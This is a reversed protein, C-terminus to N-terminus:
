KALAIISVILAFLAIFASIVASVTSIWALRYNKAAQVEADKAMKLAEEASKASRAAADASVQAGHATDTLAKVEKERETLLGLYHAWKAELGPGALQDIVQARTTVPNGVVASKFDAFEAESMSDLKSKLEAPTM